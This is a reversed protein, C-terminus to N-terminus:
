VDRNVYGYFVGDGRDVWHYRPGGSPSEDSSLNLTDFPQGTIFHECGQHRVYVRNVNMLQSFEEHLKTLRMYCDGSGAYSLPSRVANPNSPKM